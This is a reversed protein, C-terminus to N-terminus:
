KKNTTWLSKKIYYFLQIPMEISDFFYISFLEIFEKIFIVISNYITKIFWVIPYSVITIIDKIRTFLSPNYMEFYLDIAERIEEKNRM